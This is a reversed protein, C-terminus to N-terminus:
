RWLGVMAEFYRPFSKSVCGADRILVGPGRLGALAFSMAMRHDAYTDIEAPRLRPPPAISIDDATVNVSAGLKSLETRLAELRDTEKVRLNGVNRVTTVGDAFLAVVALTQATDPMANLDVDIARLRGDAPGRVALGANTEEVACGMGALVKAFAVDGQLSTATLGPATVCGGTIAALAWFNAAASADPEIPWRGAQYSQPAPIVFRGAGDDLVEVGMSRMVAKTMEVYPRSPFGNNCRIFVDQSATPAVMLLASIFQSSPPREFSAEGGTLGRAAVWLPPYGEAGAYGVQAGLGALGEVLGAIPRERMRPSGDIQYRGQRSACALAALFRMATGADGVDITAIEAPFRGGCGFVTLRGDDPCEIRVGLARLGTIMALVDSAQSAGALESPGEALAACALVRNTLSKSGPLEAIGHPPASAATVRVDPGVREIM